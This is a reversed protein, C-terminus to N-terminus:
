CPSPRSTSTVTSGSSRPRTWTRQPGSRLTDEYFGEIISIRDMDVRAARLAQEFTLRSSAFEGAVFEGGRDVPSHDPDPLGRFSDFAFFRMTTHVGQSKAEVWANVFSDGEYVGFELYHGPLKGVSVYSMAFSIM